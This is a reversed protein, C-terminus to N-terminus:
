QHLLSWYWKAPNFGEKRKKIQLDNAARKLTSESIGCQKADSFIFKSHQEGARLCDRLFAIAEKRENREDGTESRVASLMESATLSSEGTWLFNGDQIM